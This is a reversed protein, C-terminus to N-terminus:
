MLELIKAAAVQAAIGCVKPCGTESHGGADIFAQYDEENTLDFFRGLVKEQIDRCLTSTLEENFGFQQRLEEMFRLRVEISPEMMAHYTESDEIRERGIV